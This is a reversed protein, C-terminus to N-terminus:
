SGCDAGRIHGHNVLEVRPLKGGFIKLRQRARDSLIWFLIVFERSSAEVNGLLNLM